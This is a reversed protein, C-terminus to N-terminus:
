RPAALLIEKESIVKRGNEAIKEKREITLDSIKLLQITKNITSPSPVILPPNIKWDGDELITGLIDKGILGWCAM